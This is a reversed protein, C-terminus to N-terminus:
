HSDLTYRVRGSFCLWRPLKYGPNLSKRENRYVGHAMGSVEEGNAAGDRVVADQVFQAAPTHTHDVVGLVGPQPPTHRQLKKGVVNGLVRLRNLPKAAFSTGCGREIM